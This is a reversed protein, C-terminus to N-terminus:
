CAEQHVNIVAMQATPPFTKSRSCDPKVTHSVQKLFLPPITSLLLIFAEKCFDLYEM